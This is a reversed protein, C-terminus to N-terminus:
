RDGRAMATQTLRECKAELERVRDRLFIVHACAMALDYYSGSSDRYLDLSRRRQEPTLEIAALGPESTLSHQDSM